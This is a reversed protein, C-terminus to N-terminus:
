KLITSKLTEEQHFIGDEQLNKGISEIILDTRIQYKSLDIEHEM